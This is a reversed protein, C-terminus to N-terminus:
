NQRVKRNIENQNKVSNKFSINDICNWKNKILLQYSLDLKGLWSEAINKKYVIQQYIGLIILIQEWYHPLNLDELLSLSLEETHLRFAEEYKLLINIYPWNNGKPMRPFNENYYQSNQSEVVKLAKKYDSKYLHMSGVNHYYSGLEMNLECALLEQIFTFCFVDSVMGRYSDNSRMYTSSYLKGERLFYQLAITCTVDTNTQALEEKPDFIQVIARNSLPDDDKLLKVLRKWQDVKKSGYSFIKPGYACGTLTKGDKSYVKMNKCYYSIFDLRNSGSLYWLAEAFNYIINTKRSPIFCNRERPNKIMYNYNLTEFNGVGRPFNEHDHNVILDNLISIYAKDFSDYKKM